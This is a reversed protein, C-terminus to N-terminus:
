RARARTGQDGGACLPRVANCNDRHAIGEGAIVAPGSRDVQCALALVEGGEFGRPATAPSAMPTRSIPTGVDEGVPALLAPSIPTLLSLIAASSARTTDQPQRSQHGVGRWSADWAIMRLIVGHGSGVFVVAGLGFVAALRIVVLQAREPVLVCGAGPAGRM